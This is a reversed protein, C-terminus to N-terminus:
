RAGRLRSMTALRASGRRRGPATRALCPACAGCWVAPERGFGDVPNAPTIQPGFAADGAGVWGANGAPVEDIREVELRRM